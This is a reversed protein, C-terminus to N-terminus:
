SRKLGSLRSPVVTRRCVHRRWQYFRLGKSRRTMAQSWLHDCSLCREVHKQAIQMRGVKMYTIRRWVFANPTTLLWSVDGGLARLIGGNKWKKRSKRRQSRSVGVLDMLWMSHRAFVFSVNCSYMAFVCWMQWIVHWYQRCSSFCGVKMAGAASAGTRIEDATDEVSPAVAKVHYKREDEYVEATRGLWWPEGPVLSM